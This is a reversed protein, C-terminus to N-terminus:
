LILSYETQDIEKNSNGCSYLIFSISSLLLAIKIKAKM